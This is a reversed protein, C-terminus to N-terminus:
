GDLGPLSAVMDNSLQEWRVLIQNDISDYVESQVADHADLWEITRRAGDLFSISYTFDLDRHAAGNDFITNGQFNTVLPSSRKPMLAALIDTPIHVLDPAPLNMAQATLEYYRNWTLWEEGTVHYAQGFAAPNGAAQVFAHAADEVHCAVWLASGDGHAILPKGKRIRDLHYTGWGYLNVLKGGEGYTMAPRIITTAFDGRQHASMFLDECLVKNQGYGNGAHRSEDERIPYRDAPKTYVDVTSCFILQNTRGRCARLTSEAQAPTFCIMDIVCDFTGLEAIQREFNDVENRDGTITKAGEPIRVSSGGRNFLTLDVGRALFETSIATSILGTGGIILVKM